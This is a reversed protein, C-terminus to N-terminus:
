SKIESSENTIPIFKEIELWGYVGGALAGLIIHNFAMVWGRLAFFWPFFYTLTYFIISYIALGLATGGPIGM